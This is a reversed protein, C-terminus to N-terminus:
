TGRAGGGSALRAWTEELVDMSFTSKSIFSAAGAAAAPEEFDASDHTSLLVVHADHAVDGIARTADLGNMVPMQVDMLVLDPQLAEALRVAESGDCAEGVCDFGDCIDVVMRMADRFPPQDDVILVRVTM